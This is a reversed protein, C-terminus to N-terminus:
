KARNKVRSLTESVEGFVILLTSFVETLLDVVVNLRLVIFVVVIAELLELAPFNSPALLYTSKSLMM